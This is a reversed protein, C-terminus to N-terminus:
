VRRQTRVKRMFAKGKADKKGTAIYENIKDIYNVLSLGYRDKHNWDHGEPLILKTVPMYTKTEDCECYVMVDFNIKKEGDLYTVSDSLISVNDLDIGVLRTVLADTHKPDEKEIFFIRNEIKIVQM